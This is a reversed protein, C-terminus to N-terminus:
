DIIVKRKRLTVANHRNLGQCVTCMGTGASFVAKHKGTSVPLISFSSEDAGNMFDISWAPSIADRTSTTM